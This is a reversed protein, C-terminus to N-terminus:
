PARLFFTLAIIRLTLDTAQVLSQVAEDYNGRLHLAIGLGIWMEPSKPYRGVGSTFVEVAPEITRHLLLESGWDLINRESPEIQAARQLYPIAREPKGPGHPNCRRKASM